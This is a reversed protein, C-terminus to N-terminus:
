AAATFELKPRWIVLLLVAVAFFPGAVTWSAGLFKLLVGFLAVTEAHTFSTVIGSRWKGLALSDNPNTRLAAIAPTINRTRLGAAVMVDTVSLVALAAVITPSVPRETWHFMMVAYILLPITVLFLAYLTRAWRLADQVQSVSV